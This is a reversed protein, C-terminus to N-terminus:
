RRKKQKSAQGQATKTTAETSQAIQSAVSDDDENGGGMTVLEHDTESVADLELERKLITDLETDNPIFEKTGGEGKVLTGGDVEAVVEQAPRSKRLAEALMEVIQGKLAPDNLQDLMADVTGPQKAAQEAMILDRKEIRARHVGGLDLWKQVDAKIVVPFTSIQEISEVITSDEGSGLQYNGSCLEHLSSQGETFTRHIRDRGLLQM